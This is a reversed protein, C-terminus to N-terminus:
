KISDFNNKLKTWYDSSGNYFRWCRSVNNMDFFKKFDRNAEKQSWNAKEICFALFLKWSDKPNYTQWLTMWLNNFITKGVGTNLVHHYGYSCTKLHKEYRFLAFKWIIDDSEASTECKAYATMVRAVHDKDYEKLLDKVYGWYKLDNKMEEIATIQTKKFESTSKIREEDSIPLTIKLWVVLWKDPISSFNYWDIGSWVNKLYSLPKYNSLKQKIWSETDWRQVTYIYTWHDLELWKPKESTNIREHNEKQTNQKPVRLYVIEWVNFRDKSLERWNADSFQTGDVWPWVQEIFKNKIWWKTWGYALKYSYISYNWDSSERLYKVKGPQDLEKKLEFLNNSIYNEISSSLMDPSEIVMNISM